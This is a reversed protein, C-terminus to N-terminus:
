GLVTFARERRPGFRYIAFDSDFSAVRHIGLRQMVAFSTLDVLSFGQDPFGEHISWAVELDAPGVWAIEAAGSRLAGWFADAAHRNLKSRLLGWTEAVVHDTTTLKEGAALIERARANSRDGRDAAGFWVSSDVFLSM